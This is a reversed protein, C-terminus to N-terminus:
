ALSSSLFIKHLKPFISGNVSFNVSLLTMVGEVSMQRGISETIFCGISGGDYFAYTTVSEGRGKKKVKVPLISHLIITEKNNTANCEHLRLSIMETSLFHINWCMKFHRVVGVWSFDGFIGFKGTLIWCFGM